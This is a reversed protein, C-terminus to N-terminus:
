PDGGDIEIPEHRTSVELEGYVQRWSAHGDRARLGTRLHAPRDPETMLSVGTQTALSM